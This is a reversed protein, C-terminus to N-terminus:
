ADNRREDFAAIQGDLRRFDLRKRVRYVPRRSTVIGHGVDFFDGLVDAQAVDDGPQVRRIAAGPVALLGVRRQPRVQQLLSVLDQMQQVLAVGLVHRLLQAVQQALDEHVGLQGLPAPSHAM